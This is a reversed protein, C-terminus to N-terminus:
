ARLKRYSGPSERKFTQRKERVTCNNKRALATPRRVSQEVCGLSLQTRQPKVRQQSRRGFSIPANNEHARDVVRDRTQREPAVSHHAASSSSAHVGALRIRGGTFPLRFLFGALESLVATATSTGRASETM